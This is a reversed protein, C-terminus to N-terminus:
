KDEKRQDQPETPILKGGVFAMIVVSFHAFMSGVFVPQFVEAWTKIESIDHAMLGTMMGLAALGLFWGANKNTM